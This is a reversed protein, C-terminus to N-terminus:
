EAEELTEEREGTSNIVGEVISCAILSAVGVLIAATSAKRQASLADSVEDISPLLHKLM